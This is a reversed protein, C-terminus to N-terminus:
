KFARGPKSADKQATLASAFAKALDEGKGKGWFSVFLFTPQEGIMDNHLAVVHISAKRLARLVPQVEDATMIVAGDMIALGDSGCFAAWTTLGMTGTIKTGRIMGDRSITVRVVGDQTETKHGVIREVQRADLRGPKPTNGEFATVPQPRRARVARAADWVSRVGFVLKEPAGEGAMHMSYARPDDHAFHNHLATVELGAAFAADIAADVEDAFLVTDGLVVAGRPTPALTAWAILGAIPKLFVGDVKVSVDTRPWEIRVVGDATITAPVGAFDAIRRVDLPAARGISVSGTVACLPGLLIAAAWRKDNRIM